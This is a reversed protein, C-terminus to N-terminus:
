VLRIRREKWGVRRMEEFFPMETIDDAAFGSARTKHLGVRRYENGLMGTTEVILLTIDPFKTWGKRTELGRETFCKALLLVGFKQGKHEQHQQHFEAQIDPVNTFEKHLKSQLIPAGKYADENIGIRPDQVECYSAQIMLYGGKIQGFPDDFRPATSVELVKAQEEIVCYGDTPPYLYTVRRGLISAWSWSPVIYDHPKLQRLLRSAAEPELCRRQWMLGRLIDNAWLGACYRDGLLNQFAKALGSLAPLVDTAVTLRRSTYELIIDFWRDYPQQLKLTWQNLFTPISIAGMRRLMAQKKSNAKANLLDQIFKKERYKEGPAVPRGGEDIRCEQCEWLMQQTGYSLTRPSLLAEQLTWGRTNLPSSKMNVDWLHSSSRLYISTSDEYISSIWDLRCSLPFGERECLMGFETGPSSMASITIKANRYVDGMREAEAVWDESSDQLICLADIWLYRLDLSRTVHVADRLTAPFSELPIGSMMDQMNSTKLVFTSDGGWCYSLAAWSGYAGNTVVLRPEHKCEPSGVDIVRTPLQKLKRYLRQCTKHKIM